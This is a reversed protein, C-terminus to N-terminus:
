PVVHRGSGLPGNGANRGFIWESIKFDPMKRRQTENSFHLPQVSSSETTLHGRGEHCFCSPGLGLGAAPVTARGGSPSGWSGCGWGWGQDDRAWKRAEGLAPKEVLRWSGM